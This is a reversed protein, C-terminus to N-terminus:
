FQPNHKVYINLWFDSGEDTLVWDFMVSLFSELIPLEELEELSYGLGNEGKFTKFSIDLNNEIKKWIDISLKQGFKKYLKSYRIPKQIKIENLDKKVKFGFYGEKDVWSNIYQPIQKELFIKYLKNRQIKSNVNYAGFKEESAPWIVYDLYEIVLKGEFTQLLENRLIATITSMVKFPSGEQTTDLYKEYTMFKPIAINSGPFIDKGGTYSINVEYNNKTTKFTWTSSGRLMGRDFRIQTENNIFNYPHISSDGIEKIINLLKM